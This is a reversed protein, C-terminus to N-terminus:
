NDHTSIFKNHKDIFINFTHWLLKLSIVFFFYLYVDISEHNKRVIWFNIDYTFLQQSSM